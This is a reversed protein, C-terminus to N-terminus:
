MFFIREYHESVKVDLWLEDPANDIFRHIDALSFVGAKVPLYGSAKSKLFALLEVYRGIDLGDNARITTKLMSYYAWLTSPKHKQAMENFFAMLVSQSINASKKTAQWTKFSKYMKEYREKSSIPVQERAVIRVTEVLENPTYRGSIEDECSDM